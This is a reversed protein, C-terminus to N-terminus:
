AALAARMRGVMSERHARVTRESVHLEAAIDLTTRGSLLLALLEHEHTTLSPTCAVIDALERLPDLRMHDNARDLRGTAVPVHVVLRRRPRIFAHYEADRLLNAVLHHPRRELPYERVVVWAAAVVEDFADTSTGHRREWRRAATVLGPLLRQLLVRAALDDTRAARVLGALVVEAPLAEVPVMEVQVPAGVARHGTAALLEDLSSFSLGLGWGHARRVVAQRHVLAQWERQLRVALSCRSPASRPLTNPMPADDAAVSESRRM